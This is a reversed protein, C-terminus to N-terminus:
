PQGTPAGIVAEMATPLEVIAARVAAGHRASFLDILQLLLRLSEVTTIASDILRDTLERAVAVREESSDPGPIITSDLEKNRGLPTELHHFGRIM